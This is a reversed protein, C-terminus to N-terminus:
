SASVIGDRTHGGQNKTHMNQVCIGKYNSIQEALNNSSTNNKRVM